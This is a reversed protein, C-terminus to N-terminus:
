NMELGGSFTCYTQKQHRRVLKLVDSINLCKIFCTKAKENIKKCFQEALFVQFWMQKMQMM